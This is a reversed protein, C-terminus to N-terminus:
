WAKLRPLKVTGAGLPYVTAYQRAQGYKWVLEIVQPVYITPLPVTTADMATKQLADMAGRLDMGLCEASFALLKERRNRDPILAELAQGDKLRSVDLVLTATLARACDDTVFPVGGVWRVGAHSTFNAAHKKLKKIEGQLEDNRKQETKLLAPLNKIATFGGEMKSLEVLDKFLSDYGKVSDLIQGFEKIQDPTLVTNFCLGISRSRSMLLLQFSAVLFLAGGASLLELNGLAIALM